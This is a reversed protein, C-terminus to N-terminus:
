AAWVISTVDITGQAQRHRSPLWVPRPLLRADRGKRDAPWQDRRNTRLTRRPPLRLMQKLVAPGRQGVRGQHQLSRRRQQLKQRQCQLTQRPHQLRRQHRLTPCQRYLKRPSNCMPLLLPPYRTM